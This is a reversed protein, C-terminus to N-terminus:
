LSVRNTPVRVRVCQQQLISSAFPGDAAQLLLHWLARCTSLVPQRVRRVHLTVLACFDLQNRVGGGEGQALVLAAFILCPAM